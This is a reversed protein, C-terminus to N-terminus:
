SERTRALGVRVRAQPDRERECVAAVLINVVLESSQQFLSLM